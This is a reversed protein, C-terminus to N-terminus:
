GIKTLDEDLDVPLKEVRPAKHSKEGMLGDAISSNEVESVSTRVAKLIPKAAVGAEQLCHQEIQRSRRQKLDEIGERLAVHVRRLGSVGEAQM